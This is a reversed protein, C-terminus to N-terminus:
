NLTISEVTNLGGDPGSGGLAYVTGDATVVAAASRATRLTAIIRWPGPAGDAGIAAAEMSALRARGDHGGLLYLVNNMATAGALFRPQNVATSERRWAGLEGADNLPASEVSAYGMGPRGEIHGTLVYIRNNGTTAAHMYRELEAQQPALQWHSIRGERDIHAREVSRLFSGNYGGVAYIQDQWVAVQLGRRPTTLYAEQRWPGLTGGPEIAASHVSASPVNDDGLPGTAGGIAYLRQNVIASGLYFRPEPLNRTSQWPALRGDAHISSFEVSAVYQGEDSVGGLVYVFQKNAAAALARRADIFAAEDRWSPPHPTRPAEYTVRLWATLAVISGVFALGALIVPRKVKM